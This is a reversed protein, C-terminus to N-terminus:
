NTTNVEKEVKELKKSKDEVLKQGKKIHSELDAVHKEANILVNDM